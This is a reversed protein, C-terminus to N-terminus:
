LREVSHGCFLFVCANGVSIQSGTGSAQNNIKSEFNWTMFWKSPFFVHFVCVKLCECNRRGNQLRFIVFAAYDM